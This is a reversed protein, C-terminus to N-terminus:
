QLCRPALEQFVDGRVEYSDYQDWSTCGPSLLLVDGARCQAAALRVADEFRYCYLAQELGLADRIQEGDEGYCVLQRLKGAHRHLITFDLGKDRGGLILVVGQSFNDLAADVAHVNSAKSDDYVTVGGFCGVRQMRHRLGAFSALVEDTAQRDVGAHRAISLAALINPINQQGALRCDAYRYSEGALHFAGEAFYADANCSCRSITVTRLEAPAFHRLLPDDLNQVFLDGPQCHRVINQKAALYHTIEPHRDIHDQGVNLIVAADPRFRALDELMFSSLELVLWDAEIIADYCALVSVGINGAVVVSGATSLLAGTLSTTTTKGDTGTIAAVRKHAFFPYLWDIDAWVPIGRRQAEVVLPITRPVGPSLLLQNIGELQTPRQTGCFVDDPDVRLGVLLGELQARPACDSIKYKVGHAEFLRAAALGTREAFGVVLVTDRRARAWLEEQPPARQEEQAPAPSM